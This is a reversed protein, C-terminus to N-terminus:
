ASRWWRRPPPRAGSLLAGVGVLALVILIVVALWGSTPTRVNERVM